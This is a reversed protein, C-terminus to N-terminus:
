SFANEIHNIEGKYVEIIDFRVVCDPERGVFFYKAGAIYRRRRREDVAEAPAGFADSTRTKVEIFATVEGKSAIIDVEGFPNVFNRRLIKWGRKKLYKVALGEGGNGLKKRNLAMKEHLKQPPRPM